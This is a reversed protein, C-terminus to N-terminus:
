VLNCCTKNEVVVTRILWCALSSHRDWVHQGVWRGNREEKGEGRIKMRGKKKM